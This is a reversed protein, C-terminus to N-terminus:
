RIVDGQFHRPKEHAQTKKPIQHTTHKQPKTQKCTDPTKLNPNKKNPQKPKQNTKPKKKCM